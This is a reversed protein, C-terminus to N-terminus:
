AEESECAWRPFAALTNRRTIEEVHARTVEKVQALAQATISVYAPENPKGRHPVPSIYPADSEIVLRELPVARAIARINEAKPFTIWGAIGIYFHRAIDCALAADVSCCHWHGGLAWGDEADMIAMAEDAAEREHIIVPLGLERALALQRRFADCQAARPSHDYHFDLGIEGFAVVEPRRGLERLANLAADDLYQSDHPHMGVAARLLRPYRAALEVAIRSSDVDCGVVLAGGVGADTMHALLAEIEPVLRPDNLHCHADIMM